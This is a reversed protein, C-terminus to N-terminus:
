VSEAIDVLRRFLTTAVTSSPTCSIMSAVDWAEKRSLSAKELHYTDELLQLAISYYNEHCAHLLPEYLSAGLGVLIRVMSRDRRSAALMVPTAGSKTKTNVDMNMDRVLYIVMSGLGACVAAHLASICLKEAYLSAGCRVLLMAIREERVFLAGLLTTTKHGAPGDLPAGSDILFVVVDELGRTAALYLPPFAFVRVGPGSPSQCREFTCGADRAERLIAISVEQDHCRVIAHYVCSAGSRINCSYLIQNCIDHLRLCTRALSAQEGESCCEAIHSILETPLGDLM